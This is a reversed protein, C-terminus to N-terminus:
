EERLHMDTNDGVAALCPHNGPVFECDHQNAGPLHAVVPSYVRGNGLTAAWWSFSSNARFLVPAQSLRYFDAAFGPLGPVIRPWNESVFELKSEPEYIDRAGTYSRESVVVYGDLGEYDGRRVHAACLPKPVDKLRELVGPKWKFWEKVQKRTYIMAAKNQHYGHDQEHQARSVEPLDFLEEGVWAPTCLERGELNARARAHAYAFLQNGFRGFLPTWLPKM